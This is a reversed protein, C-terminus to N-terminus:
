LLEFNRISRVFAIAFKILLFLSIAGLIIMLALLGTKILTQVSQSDIIFPFIQRVLYVPIIGVAIMVAQLFYYFWRPRYFLFWFNGMIGLIVALNIAWLCSIFNDALFPIKWQTYASDMIAKLLNSGQPVSLLYLSLLNNFVYLLVICVIIGAFYKGRREPTTPQNEIFNENYM